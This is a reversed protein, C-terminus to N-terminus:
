QGRVAEVFKRNFNDFAGGNVVYDSFIPVAMKEPFRNPDNSSIYVTPSNPTLIIYYSSKNTRLRTIKLPATGVKQYTHIKRTIVAKQYRPEVIAKILGIFSLIREYIYLRM